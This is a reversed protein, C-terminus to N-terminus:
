QIAELDELNNELDEMADGVSGSFDDMITGGSGGDSILDSGEVVLDGDETTHDEVWQQHTALQTAMQVRLNEIFSKAMAENDTNTYVLLVEDIHDRLTENICRTTDAINPNFRIINEMEHQVPYYSVTDTDNGPEIYKTMYALCYESYNGLDQFLANLIAHEEESVKITITTDYLREILCHSLVVYEEANPLIIRIDIYDGAMTGIPISNFTIDRVYKKKTDDTKEMLMDTSLITGPNINVKYVKGVLDSISTITTEGTTSAPISVAILDSEQIVKGSYCKTATQYVTMMSGISNLQAQVQANQETLIRNQELQNENKDYFHWTGFAGLGIVLIFAVIIIVKKM